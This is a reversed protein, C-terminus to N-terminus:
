FLLRCISVELPGFQGVNNHKMPLVALPVFLFHQAQKDVKKVTHQEERKTKSSYEYDSDDRNGQLIGNRSTAIPQASSNKREIKNLNAPDQDKSVISPTGLTAADM